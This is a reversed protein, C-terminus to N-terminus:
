LGGGMTGATRAESDSDSVALQGGRVTAATVEEESHTDSRGYWAVVVCGQQQM